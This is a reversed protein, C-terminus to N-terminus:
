RSVLVVAGFPVLSVKGARIGMWQNSVLVEYEERGPSEVASSRLRRGHDSLRSGPLSTSRGLRFAVRELTRSRSSM